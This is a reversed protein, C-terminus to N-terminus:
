LYVCVCLQETNVVVAAAAKVVVPDMACDTCALAVSVVHYIM